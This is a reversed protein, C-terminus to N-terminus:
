PARARHRAFASVYWSVLAHRARYPVGECLGRAITEFMPVEYALHAVDREVEGWEAIETLVANLEM